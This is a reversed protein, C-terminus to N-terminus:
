PQGAVALLIICSCCSLSSGTAAPWLDQLGSALPNHPGAAPLRAGTAAPLRATTAAPPAACPAAPRRLLKEPPAARARWSTGSARRPHTPSPSPSPHAACGGGTSPSAGAQGDGPLGGGGRLIDGLHHGKIGDSSFITLHSPSNCHGAASLQRTRVACTDGGLDAQQWAAEAM